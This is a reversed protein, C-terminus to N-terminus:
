GEESVPIYRRIQHETYGTMMAIQQITREGRKWAELIEDKMPSPAGKPKRVPENEQKIEPEPFEEKKTEEIRPKRREEAAYEPCKPFGAMERPTLKKCFVLRGGEPQPIGLYAEREGFIKLRVLRGADEMEGRLLTHGGEKEMRLRGTERGDIYIPIDM